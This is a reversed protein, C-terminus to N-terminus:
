FYYAARLYIARGSAVYSGSGSPIGGFETGRDGAPLNIGAMLQLNQRWDYVGRIQFFRSGDNLNWILNAFVNLLPDLEVNFGAAVYDRALTFLEGRVIRESLAATPAVYLARDTVGVGNRFYEAYGYVNRGGWTWAYDINTVLSFAGGARNVDTYSADARWVAGGVSRVVGFGILSEAFHRAAILDLDFEGQRWRLKTAYSSRDSALEHTLPDRRPLVIAQVDAGADLTWQGYLMDDGTKYDKDIAIPSFPNVFDLAHFVLGNGWSIVQRGFRLVAADGSYGLSLRDLRHVAATREHDALAHTLDFWRRRDDPLGSATGTTIAGLAASRRRTALADGAVGLLEYHALYEWPGSRREAKLRFDVDHNSAPDVGLVADIDDSRYSTHTLQYKFHGGLEWPDAHGGAPGALVLAGLLRLGVSRTRMM